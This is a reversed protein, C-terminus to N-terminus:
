AKCLNRELIDMKEELSMIRKNQEGIKAFQSKRQRNLSEELKALHEMMAREESQQRTEFINYQIALSM